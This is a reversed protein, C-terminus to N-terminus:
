ITPDILIEMQFTGDISDNNDVTFSTVDADFPLPLGSGFHWHYPQNALLTIPSGSPGTFDVNVSVDALFYISKLQSVDLAVSFEVDVAEAAIVEAISIQKGATLTAHGTVIPEDDIQVRTTIKHTHSM